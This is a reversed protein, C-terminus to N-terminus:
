DCFDVQKVTDQHGVEQADKIGMYLSNLNALHEHNRM